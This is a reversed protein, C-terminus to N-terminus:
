TMNKQRFLPAGNEMMGLEDMLLIDFPGAKHLLETGLTDFVQPFATYRGQGLRQGVMCECSPRPEIHPDGSFIYVGAPTTGGGGLSLTRFGGIRIDGLEALLRRILTSKGTQIQGTLFINDM